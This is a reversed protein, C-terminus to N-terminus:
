KLRVLYSNQVLNLWAGNEYLDAAYIGRKKFGELMPLFYNFIRKHGTIDSIYLKYYDKKKEKTQRIEFKDLIFWVTQPNENVMELPVVGVSEIEAIEASSFMLEKDYTGLIEVQFDIKDVPEWDKKNVNESCEVINFKAQEKKSWNDILSRHMHAYNEFLRGEGVIGLSDLAELKILADLSRKNFKSFKWKKKIKISKKMQVEVIDYFFSEFISVFFEKGVDETEPRAWGKRLDLLEEAAADGFGKLSLLSPICKKDPMITWSYKDSLLINPKDVSYGMREIESCVSPVDPDTELCSRIWEKEYYTLLFACQYSVYAYSQAHSKNFSYSVSGAIEVDWLKIAEEESLGSDICGLIFRQRSEKRKELLEDKLEESPKMLIKRLDNTEELSFGALKNALLMFQEQFILLNYTPGLIEEVIPHVKELTEKNTKSIIYREDSKSSLPGPRQISTVQSIEELCSIKSKESFEKVKEQTFQFTSCFKGGSYVKQFINKDGVDLIDPHLFKNYWVSVDSIQNPEGEAELIFEICRKITKLTILGLIDFKILGFDQLHQAALGETIPSQFSGRIKIAPLCSVADDLILTGAAHTGISKTEKHLSKIHEAVEPYEDVFNKFTLSYKYAKEFTLDYLKQDHNIEELISQKAEEEIKKTVNNVIEFPIDYLKSVDKTLSKLNLRNYNSITLVNEEGFKEKLIEIALEKDSFDTDIDPLDKRGEGYFREWLLGNKIPDLQTIGALYCVLSGASSGRAPGILMYEKLLKIIEYVCIFYTAVGRKEIQTLEENLRDLYQVNKELDRERLNKFAINKLIDFDSLSTSLERKQLLLNKPFKPASDPIVFDALNHGIDHTRQIADIIFEDNDFYEKFTNKYENFLQDGNKLYLSCDLDEIKKELISRDFDKSSQQYGLLRYIERARWDEERPYHSDCTVISKYGFKRGFAIMHLNMIQQDDIKNFQLECFARDPGFIKFIPLLEKEYIDMIKDIPVDTNQSLIYGGVGAICATNVILGESHEKLMELDIRPKRYFGERYSRTTLRFLNKLGEQSIAVLVLHNRRNLPNLWSLKGKSEKEDEIVLDSENTTLEGTKIKKWDSLSPIYYAELGYLIKVPSGIKKYKKNAAAIYGCSNLNGHNSLTFGGSDEGANRLMQQVYDEPKGLGDFISANDHGHLNFFKLSM